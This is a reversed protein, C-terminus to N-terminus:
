NPMAQCGLPTLTAPFMLVKAQMFSLDPLAAIVKAAEESLNEDKRPKRTSTSTKEVTSMLRAFADAVRSSTGGADLKATTLEYLEPDVGDLPNTLGSSSWDFQIPPLAEQVADSSCSSKEPAAPPAQAISAIMEAASVPKVPEKTPELMGLGAAYMPVIVPQKKQGTFLINRTDIGLCCLLVKNCHSGGWQYRLGLAEHIDQLQVWVGGHSTRNCPSRSDESGSHPEEGPPELLIKLSVVEEELRAAVVHPFSSQFLRELRSSLVVPQNEARSTDERSASSEGEKSEEERSGAPLGAASQEVSFAAWSDGEAQQELEGFANWAAESESGGVASSFNGFSDSVPFAAFKDEGEDETAGGTHFKPSNFDGFDDDAVAAEQAPESTTVESQDQEVAAFDAFGQSSDSAADGFDGFDADDEMLQSHEAPTPTDEPLPPSTMSATTSLDGYEELAHTSLPLGLSTESTETESGKGDGDSTGVEEDAAPEPSLDHKAAAAREAIDVWNLVLPDKTCVTESEFADRKHIDVHSCSGRATDSPDGPEDVRVSGSESGPTEPGTRNTDRVNDETTVGPEAGCTSGALWGPNDSDEDETQSLRREANAFAAFDALDDEPSGVPFSGTDETSTEKTHSHVSNQSSPSGQVDFGNTLVETGRGNCDVCEVKTSDLSDSLVKKAETRELPGNGQCSAPAVGNAKSLETIHCSTGNTASHTFAVVGRSNILEPPSTTILAQSQNFTTPTDFESFSISNPVGGSFTGFDGFEDDEEEAGDEMPPPSSSYIRIVDPEM